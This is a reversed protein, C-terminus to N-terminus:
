AWPIAEEREARKRRRREARIDDWLTDFDEPPMTSIVESAMMMGNAELLAEARGQEIYIRETPNKDRRRRSELDGRLAQLMTDWADRVDQASVQRPIHGLGGVVTGVAESGRPPKLQLLIQYAYVLSIKYSM